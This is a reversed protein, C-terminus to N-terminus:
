FSHPQCIFCFASSSTASIFNNFDEKPTISISLVSFSYILPDAWTLAVRSLTLSALNLHNQCTCTISPLCLYFLISSPPKSSFFPLLRFFLLILLLIIIILLLILIIINLLLLIIILFFFFSLLEIKWLNKYNLKKIPKLCKSCFPYWHSFFSCIFSYFYSFHFINFFRGVISYGVLRALPKM